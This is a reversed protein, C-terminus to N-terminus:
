AATVTLTGGNAVTVKYRTGDPSKMIIGEGSMVTELRPTYVTDDASGTIASGGIVASRNGSVTSTTSHVFSGTGSATSEIGGAHSYEGSAVSKYGEAHSYVGSSTTNHGEAHSYMGSALTSYGEAVAYNGTADVLSDNTAKVSYTGTSGAEWYKTPIAAIVVAGDADIAISKTPPTSGVNALILTSDITVTPGTSAQINDVLITSM